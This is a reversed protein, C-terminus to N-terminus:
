NRLWPHAAEPALIEFSDAVKEFVPFMRKKDNTGFGLRYLWPGEEVFYYRCSWVGGVADKELDLRWAPGAKVEAAGASVGRFGRPALIRQRQEAHQELSRPRLANCPERFVIALVGDGRSVFRMLEYPSNTKDPAAASWHAPVNLAFNWEPREYRQLDMAMM